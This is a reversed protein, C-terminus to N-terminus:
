NCYNSPPLSLPALAKGKSDLPIIACAPQIMRKLAQPRSAFQIIVRQGTQLPLRDHIRFRFEASNDLQIFAADPKSNAQEWTIYHINTITGPIGAPLENQCAVSVLCGFLMVPLRAMSM